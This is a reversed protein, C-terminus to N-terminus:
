LLHKMFAELQYEQMCTMMLKHRMGYWSDPTDIVNQIGLTSTLAEELTTPGPAPVPHIENFQTLLDPHSALLARLEEIKAAREEPELNNM